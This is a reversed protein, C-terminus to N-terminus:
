LLVSSKEGELREMNGGRTKGIGTYKEGMICGPVRLTMKLAEKERVIMDMNM